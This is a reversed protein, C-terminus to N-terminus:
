RGVGGEGEREEGLRRGRIEKEERRGGNRRAREQVRKREDEKESFVIM